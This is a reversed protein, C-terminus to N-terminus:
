ILMIEHKGDPQVFFYLLTKRPEGASCSSGLGEIRALGNKGMELIELTGM